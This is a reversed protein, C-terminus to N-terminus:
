WRTRPSARWSTGIWATRRSWGRGDVGHAVPLQGVIDLLEEESGRRLRWYLADWAARKEAATGAPLDLTEGAVRVAIREARRIAQELEVWWLRATRDAFGGTM